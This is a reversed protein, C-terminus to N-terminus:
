KEEMNTIVCGLYIYKGVQPVARGNLTTNVSIDESRKTQAMWQTKGPWTNIELRIEVYTRQLASVLGQQKEDTDAILM